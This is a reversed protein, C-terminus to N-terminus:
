QHGPLDGLACAAVNAPVDSEWQVSHNVDCLRGLKALEDAISNVHRKCFMIEHHSFWLKLQLKTDEIIASYASSDVKGLDMAEALLQCDTEFIVRLMGMDAAFSVAEAMAHVEAAFADAVYEKRGARACLVTGAADRAVVGWGAHTEGPVHLGDVNLKIKDDPPPKWSIKEPTAGAQAYVQHYELASSRTRRAVDAPTDPLEGERVKNRNSWWLWWFTLILIRKKEDLGWLFDLMVHVSTIRELAMREKELSLDRWVEKVTKCM